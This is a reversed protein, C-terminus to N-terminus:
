CKDLNAISLQKFQNKKINEANILMVKGWIEREFVALIYDTTDKSNKAYPPLLWYSQGCERKKDHKVLPIFERFVRSQKDRM